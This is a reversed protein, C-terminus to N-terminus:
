QRERAIAALDDFPRSAYELPRSCLKEYALVFDELARVEYKGYLHVLLQLCGLTADDCGTIEKVDEETLASRFAYKPPLLRSYRPVVMRMQNIAKLIPPHITPGTLSSLLHIADLHREVLEETAELAEEVTACEFFAKIVNALDETSFYARTLVRFRSLHGGSYSERFNPDQRWLYNAITEMPDGYTPHINRAIQFADLLVYDDIRCCSILYFYCILLCFFFKM